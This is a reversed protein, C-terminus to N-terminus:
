QLPRGALLLGGQSAHIRHLCKDLIDRTIDEVSMSLNIAAAIENLATLEEVSARLRNLEQETISPMGGDRRSVM